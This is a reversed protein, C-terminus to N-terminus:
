RIPILAALDLNRFEAISPLEIDPLPEALTVNAYKGQRVLITTILPGLRARLAQLVEPKDEVMVYHDAPYAAFAEDFHQMKRDFVLSAGQVADVLGARWIKGPQFAPDGESLIVAQGAQRAHAIAALAGPFLYDRYPLGMWLAALAFQQRRREQEALAASELQIDYHAIALPINVGGTDSRVAEYADWFQDACGPGLEADMRDGAHEKALDNDILTNDVDFFVTLRPYAPVPALTDQGSTM